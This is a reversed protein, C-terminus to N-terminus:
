GTSAAILRDGLARVAERLEPGSVVRFPAPITALVEAYWAPDSTSGLLRCTAGDIPELRGITRSLWHAMQEAPASIEVETPFEWGVAFNQELVAVPDLDAPPEFEEALLEVSRVRDLRYTRIAGNSVRRSLLYWRAQRVVVAWPEVQSSWAAGDEHRYGIRVQRHQSCAYVLQATISPDAPAAHRDPVPRATRRVLEAQAAVAEPLARMIKRLANAVPDTSDAAEHHGELVAMVMGLAETATFVLPPLRVGRGVSYGGYRGRVSLIPIEAERLIGVYRRAARETVGLAVALQDATTGPQNQLLELVQLARATPSTETSM